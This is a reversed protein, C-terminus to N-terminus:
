VVWGYLVKPIGGWGPAEGEDGAVYCRGGSSGRNDLTTQRLIHCSQTGVCHPVLMQIKGGTDVTRTVDPRWLRRGALFEWEVNPTNGRVPPERPLLITNFVVKLNARIPHM